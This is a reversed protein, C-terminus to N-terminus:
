IRLSSPLSRILPVSLCIKALNDLQLKVLTSPLAEFLQELNNVDNALKKDDLLICLTRLNRPLSRAFEPNLSTQLNTETLSLPLFSPNINGFCISRVTQLNPPALSWAQALASPDAQIYYLDADLHTLSRPLLSICSLELQLGLGLFTLTPPLGLYDQPVIENLDSSDDIKLTHLHPFLAGIDILRSQGQPYHKYIYTLDDETAHPAYDLLSMESEPFCLKLRELTPPLSNLISRWELPNDLVNNTSKITLRRLNRLSLISRPFRSFRYHERCELKIRTVGSSLKSNLSMNGCLYLRLYVYFSRSSDIMLGLVDSSLHSLSTM